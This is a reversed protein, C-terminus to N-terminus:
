ILPDTPPDASRFGGHVGKGPLHQDLRLHEILWAEIGADHFIGAGAEVAEQRHKVLLKGIAVVNDARKGDDIEEDARAEVASGGEEVDVDTGVLVDIGPEPSEVGLGIPLVGSAISRTPCSSRARATPSSINSSPRAPSCSRPSRRRRTARPRHPM